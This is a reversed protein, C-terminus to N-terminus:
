FVASGSDSLAESDSDALVEFEWVGFSSKRMMLQMFATECVVRKSASEADMLLTVRKVM